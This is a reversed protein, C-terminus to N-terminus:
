RAHKLKSQLIDREKGDWAFRVVCSDRRVETVQGAGFKPNDVWEGSVFARVSAAESAFQPRGGTSKRSPRKQLPTTSRASTKDKVKQIDSKKLKSTGPQPAFGQPWSTRAIHSPGAGSLFENVYISPGGPNRGRSHSWTVALYEKARTMAVYALRREEELDTSKSNPMIGAECGALFVARWELGKAQHITSVCVGAEEREDVEDSTQKLAHTIFQAADRFSRSDAAIREVIGEWEMEKEPQDRFPMRRVVLRSLGEVAKEFPAAKQRDVETNIDKEIYSPINWGGASGNAWRAIGGLLARAPTSNWIKAGGRVFHPLRLTALAATITPMLYRARVLVATEELPIGQAVLEQISLAIWEAETSEQSAGCTTVAQEQLGIAVSRLPKDVRSRNNAVLQTAREIIRPQSRYNDTLKYVRTGPFTGSFGLIYGVDSGRWGYIAQDDDGVAWLNTHQDLLLCIFAYQAPNVDQFEDIMLFQYRQSYSRRLEPYASLASVVLLLLDGYDHLGERSMRLQYGEYAAVFKKRDLRLAPPLGDLEDRAKSPDMLQDKYRDIADICDELELSKDAVDRLIRYRDGDSALKIRASLGISQGVEGDLLRLCLAHFTGVVLQNVALGTNLSIRQKLQRAAVRTFTTALIQAPGIGNEVLFRYRAVLTTTKGTGPGALVLAPGHV